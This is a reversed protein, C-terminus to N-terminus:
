RSHGSMQITSLPTKGFKADMTDGAVLFDMFGETMPDINGDPYNSMIELRKVAFRPAKLFELVLGSMFYKTHEAISIMPTGDDDRLLFMGGGVNSVRLVTLPSWSTGVQRKVFENYLTVGRAINKGILQMRQQWAEVSPLVPVDDPYRKRNGNPGVTYVLCKNRPDAFRPDALEFNLVHFFAFGSDEISTVGEYVANCYRLKLTKM